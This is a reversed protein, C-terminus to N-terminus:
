LVGHGRAGAKAISRYFSVSISLVYNIDNVLTYIKELNILLPFYVFNLLSNLLTENFVIVLCMNPLMKRDNSNIFYTNLDLL